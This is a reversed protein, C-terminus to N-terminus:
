SFIPSNCRIGIVKGVDMIDVEVGKADGHVNVWNEWDKSKAPNRSRAFLSVCKKSGSSSKSTNM